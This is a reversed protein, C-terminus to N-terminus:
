QIIFVYYLNNIDALVEVAVDQFLKNQKTENSLVRALPIDPPYIESIGSTYIIDGEKIDLSKIVGELIGYRGFTPKFQGLINNEGIKVSVSFNNDTILQVNSNNKGINITKGVLSGNMDIVPLNTKLNQDLGVNVLCSKVSISYNSNVINAPLLSLSSFSEKYNLLKRLNKNEIKYNILKSNLLSLQAIQNAFLQNEQKVILIDKYWTNPKSLFEFLELAIGKVRNTYKSDKYFFVSVSLLSIIIFILTNNNFTFKKFFNM